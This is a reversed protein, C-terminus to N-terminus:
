MVSCLNETQVNFANFDEAHDEADVTQFSLNTILLCRSEACVFSKYAFSFLSCLLIQSMM